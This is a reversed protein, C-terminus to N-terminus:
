LYSLDNPYQLGIVDGFPLSTLYPHNTKMKLARQRSEESPGKTEASNIAGGLAGGAYCKIRWVAGIGAGLLGSGITHSTSYPELL